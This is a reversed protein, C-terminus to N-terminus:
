GEITVIDWDVTGAYIGHVKWADIVQDNSLSEIDNSEQYASSLDDILQQRTATYVTTM